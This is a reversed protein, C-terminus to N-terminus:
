GMRIWSAKIAKGAAVARVSNGIAILEIGESAIPVVKAQGANVIVTATAHSGDMASANVTYHGDAPAAFLHAPSGVGAYVQASGTNVTEARVMKASATNARLNDVELERIRAMEAELRETYASRTRLQEATFNSVVLNPTTVTLTQGDESKTFSSGVTNNLRELTSEAVGLRQDIAVTVRELSVIKETNTSIKLAHEAIKEINLDIATQMNDMRSTASTRWEELGKVRGDIQGVRTDLEGLKKGQTQVTSDLAKLQTNLQGVGAAALTGLASYDVSYLGGMNVQALEPFLAALEQAIVGVRVQGTPDNILRYRYANVNTLRDLISQNDVQNIDTKLRRDSTLQVGAAYVNGSARIDGTVQLKGGLLNGSTAAGTAGIVVTDSTRGLVVTSSTTVLAESGLATAYSLQTTTGPMAYSGLF